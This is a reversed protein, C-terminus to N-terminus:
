TEQKSTKPVACYIYSSVHTDVAVVPVLFKESHNSCKEVHLREAKKEADLFLLLLM